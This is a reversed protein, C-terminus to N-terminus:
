GANIKEIIMAQLCETSFFHECSSLFTFKEGLLNRYCIECTHEESDFSRRFAEMSKNMALDLEKANSFEIELDGDANRVLEEPHAEILTEVLEDQIINVMEYIAPCEEMWVEVLKGILTPKFKQYFDGRLAMLPARHSPYAKVLVISLEVAPLKRFELITGRVKDKAHIKGEFNPVISLNM